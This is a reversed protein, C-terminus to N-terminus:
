FLKNVKKFEDFQQLNQVFLVIIGDHTHIKSVLDHMADFPNFATVFIIIM